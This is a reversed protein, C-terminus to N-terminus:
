ERDWNRVVAQNKDRMYDMWTALMRTGPLGAKDQRTAWSQAINPLSFAWTKKEAKTLAHTQQKYTKECVGVGWKAGGLIAKNAGDSWAKAAEVIAGQVERPIKSWSDHNYTLVANAIAGFGTDLHYPTIECFKFAAMAQQWLVGGEYVGAKLSNYMTALGKITVPTAGAASVWPFNSGVAGIKMGKLDDISAVKKRTWLAYNEATGTISIVTQNFRHMQKGMDPFTEFLDHMADTAVQVDLSTFPTVYGIQYLSMKSPHFPGPVVGLDGLGAQVGELEGRVKVIQGGFGKIWSVKYNGTKALIEDVRPILNNIAAGVPAYHHTNGSIVTLRVKKQAAAPAAALMVAPAAVAIVAVAKSLRISKLRSHRM